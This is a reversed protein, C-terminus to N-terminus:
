IYKEYLTAGAVHMAPHPLAFPAQSVSVDLPTHYYRVQGLSYSGTEWLQLTVQNNVIFHCVNTHKIM